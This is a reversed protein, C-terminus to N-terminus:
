KPSTPKKLVPYGRVYACDDKKAPINCTKCDIRFDTAVNRKPDKTLDSAARLHRGAPHSVGLALLSAVLITAPLGRGDALPLAQHEHRPKRPIPSKPTDPGTVLGSV